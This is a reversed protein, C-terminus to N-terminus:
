QHQGAADGYLRHAELRETAAAPALIDPLRFLVDLPAGFALPQRVLAVAADTIKLTREAGHLHTQDVHIRFPRVALRIGERRGRINAFRERAHRHVVFFCDRQNSATVAEALVVAWEM